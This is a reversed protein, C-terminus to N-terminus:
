TNATGLRQRRHWSVFLEGIVRAGLHGVLASHPSTVADGSGSNAIGIAVCPLATRLKRGLAVRAGVVLWQSATAFLLYDRAFRRELPISDPEQDPALDTEGSRVLM